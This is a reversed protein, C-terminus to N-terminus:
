LGICTGNVLNMALKFQCVNKHASSVMIKRRLQITITYNPLKKPQTQTLGQMTNFKKATRNNHIPDGTQM